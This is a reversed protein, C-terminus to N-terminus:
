RTGPCPRFPPSEWRNAEGEDSGRVAATRVKANWRGCIERANAVKGGGHGCRVNREHRNENVPISFRQVRAVAVCMGSRRLTRRCAARGPVGEQQLVERTSRASRRAKGGVADSSPTPSVGLARTEAAVAREVEVAGYGAGNGGHPPM